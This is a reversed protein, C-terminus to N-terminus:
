RLWLGTKIALSRWFGRRESSAQCKWCPRFASEPMCFVASEKGCQWCALNHTHAGAGVPEITVHLMEGTM